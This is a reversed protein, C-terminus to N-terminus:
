ALGRLYSGYFNTGDCFFSFLDKGNAATSLIPAAGSPWKFASGWTLLRSGTADQNIILIYTKVKMNTPNALARSGALTVEGIAGASLDWAITASDKLKQYSEVGSAQAYQFSSM